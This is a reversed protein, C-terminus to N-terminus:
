IVDVNEFVSTFLRGTLVFKVLPWCSSYMMQQKNELISLYM